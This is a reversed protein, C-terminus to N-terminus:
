DDAEKRGLMVYVYGKHALTEYASKKNNDREIILGYLNKLDADSLKHQLMLATLKHAAAQKAGSDAHDNQKISLASDIDALVDNPLRKSRKISDLKAVAADYAQSRKARYAPSAYAPSSKIYEKGTEWEWSLQHDFRNDLTIVSTGILLDNVGDNNWDTVDVHLWSGPFSKGGDQASFLPVGPEFRLGNDTQVARFFTVAQSGEQIHIHSVLLDPLGDGDWDAVCPIMAEGCEPRGAFREEPTADYPSVHLPKGATDLLLERRGFVPEHRKGINKSIRLTTGGTIMDALGDGDFDGFAASSYQWYFWSDPDTWPVDHSPYKQGLMHDGFQPLPAGPLFGDESGRFWTILGPDYQGSILDDYGDNDLDIIRPTFGLCCWTEISLPVTKPSKGVGTYLYRHQDNFAPAEATGINYYVRVFNGGVQGNEMLSLYEGVLLAKKGNGSLDYFAPSAWGAGEAMAPRNGAMVLTPKGLMPAGPIATFALAPFDNPNGKGQTPATTKQGFAFAGMVLIGIMASLGYRLSGNVSNM